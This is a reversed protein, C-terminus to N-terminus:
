ALAEMFGAIADVHVGTVAIEPTYVVEDAAWVITGKVDKTVGVVSEPAASTTTSACPTPGLPAALPRGPHHLLRRGGHVHLRGRPARQDPVHVLHPRRLPRRARRPDAGGAVVPDAGEVVINTASHGPQTDFARGGAASLPVRQAAVLAPAAPAADVGLKEKIARITSCASRTTGTASCRRRARRGQDPRHARHAAGRVHHGQLGHARAARRPRLHHARSLGGAQRAQGPVAHEVRLLVGGPLVPRRPQESIPWPSAASSRGHLRGSPVRQGGIAEVRTRAAEAARRTPSTPSGRAAHVVRLGQRRAGRGHRHRLEHSARSTPRRSPCPARPSPWAVGPHHHRRRRPDARAEPLEEESAALEALRSSPSSAAPARGHSRGDRRWSSRTTSRSSPPITTTPSSARAAGPRPCRASSRTARGGGAAGEDLAGACGPRRSIAPSPASAWSCRRRAVRLEGPRRYRVDRHEQAGGRRQLPYALHLQPPHPALPQGGRVSRGRDGRAAGARLGAGRPRRPRSPRREPM